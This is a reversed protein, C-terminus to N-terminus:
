ILKGTKIKGYSQRRSDIALCAIVLHLILFVLPYIVDEWKEWRIIVVVSLLVYAISWLWWPFANETEPNRWVSYTIPVFSIVATFILFMNAYVVSDYAWWVLLATCDLIIILWEFTTPRTFHGRILSFLFIGIASLSCVVPLLNKQWDGTVQLYTVAELVSGLAWVAWSASNPKIKASAVRKIYDFYAFIHLLSALVSIIIPTFIM